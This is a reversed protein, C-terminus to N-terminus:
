VRWKIAQVTPTNEGWPGLTTFHPSGPVPPHPPSNWTLRSVSVHQGMGHVPCALLKAEPELSFSTQEELVRGEWGSAGLIVYSLTLQVVHNNTLSKSKEDRGTHFEFQFKIGGRQLEDYRSKNKGEKCM